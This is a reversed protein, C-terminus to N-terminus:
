RLRPRQKFAADLTKTGTDGAHGLRPLGLADEITRLTSYHTVPTGFRAGRKVGRGAIVMPIRGGHALGGCCGANSNGEDYTLVLFGSPGLHQLIQPVVRSLYRDSTSVACDHSDDCLDPSLFSFSPLSGARLDKTLQSGPVVNSCRSPDDAVSSYYMFPNHKKAYRGSGAGKFCSRPMGGMYAKWSLGANELQDAISEASQQCDTCNSTVGLTSGATLALYNPLSPHRVGYSRTALTYRRALANVYPASRSGIVQGYEKNEMVIVFVRSKTTTAAAHPASVAASSGGGGGSSCGFLAIAALLLVARKM